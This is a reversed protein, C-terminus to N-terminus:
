DLGHAVKVDAVRGPGHCLACTEYTALNDIDVQTVDGWSGGNQKMHETALTGGHCSACATMIPTAKGHGDIDHRDAGMDITDVTSGRVVGTVIPANASLEYTGPLHCTECNSIDGPFRRASHDATRAYLPEAGQAERFAAAHLGHIIFKFDTPVERDNGSVLKTLHGRSAVDTSNSNHCIVCLAVQNRSNGGHKSFAGGGVAHCSECKDQDVVARRAVASGGDVPFHGVANRVVMNGTALSPNVVVNQLGAVVTDVGTAPVTIATVTTTYSGNANAVTDGSRAANAITRGDGPRFGGINTQGGFSGPSSAATGVSHIYEGDAGYGILLATNLTWGGQGDVIPNGNQDLARWTVVPNRAGNLAVNVVEYTLQEAVVQRTNEHRNDVAWLAGPGHCNSCNADSAQPGGSHERQWAAPTGAFVVDDHCSGCAARTPKTRWNDGDPTGESASHCQTCNPIMASGEPYGLDSYNHEVSNHGWIAFPIGAQVSPLQNGRHLKHFLQKADLSNGSNADTSGPNHCTVCYEVEVRGGGHMALQGGHCANCSEINAVNRTAVPTGGAPVFDYWVNVPGHTSSMPNSLQMAVRHTLTPDYAVVAPTTINTVDRNFTYRYEGGGLHELTGNSETTGQITQGPPLVAAGDPGATASGPDTRNIYNQWDHGGGARPALKAFTFAVNGAALTTFPRDNQDAVTFTVVPPSSVTAGTIEINLSTAPTTLDQGPTGPAGDKGDSFCGTLFLTLAALLAAPRRLPTGFLAHPTTNAM